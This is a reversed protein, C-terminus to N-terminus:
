EGHAAHGGHEGARRAPAASNHLGFLVNLLRPKTAALSRRRRREAVARVICELEAHCAGRASSAQGARRFAAALCQPFGVRARQQCQPDHPEPQRRYIAHTANSERRRGARICRLRFETVEDRSNTDTRM